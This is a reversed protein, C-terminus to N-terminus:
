EPGEIHPKDDEAESELPLLSSGNPADASPMSPWQPERHEHFAAVGEKFDPSATSLRRLGAAIEGAQIWSKNRSQLVYEMGLRIGEPSSRAIDRSIAAARDDMEFAHAAQHILGWALAEQTSFLRGTLSLELTRRAGIAAEISRYVLFPWIGTRIETLGFLSGQAAVAVHAQAVLGLGGGLAPGNVCAVIPKRSERGISFLKEHIGISRDVESATAEDLDMGASFVRGAADILIVGVGPDHQVSDITEVLMRCMEINLANRKQPRNLTLHLVRDERKVLLLSM